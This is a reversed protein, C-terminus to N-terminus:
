KSGNAVSTEKQQSVIVVDNERVGSIRVAVGCKPCPDSLLHLGAYNRVVTCITGEPIHCWGNWMERLTKVTLGEWDRKLKPQKM